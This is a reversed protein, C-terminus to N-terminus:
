AKKSQQVIRNIHIMFYLLEEKSLQIGLKVQIYAAIQMACRNSEPYKLSMQEYVFNDEHAVLDGQMIRRLFYSIHTAFRTFSLSEQDIEIKFHLQVIKMIDAIIATTEITLKMESNHNQGNVFHLAIYGAENDSLWVREYYNITKIANRAAQYEKPYFRKIEWLMANPMDLDEKARSIAYRLHDSLGVYIMNNFTVGLDKEANEVIKVALDIYIIPIEEFLQNFRTQMNGSDLVFRKDLNDESIQDGIKKKFAVGNGLFIFEQHQEDEVLAINNNFIKKVIYM